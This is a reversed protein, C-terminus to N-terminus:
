GCFDHGEQSPRLGEAPEAVHLFVLPCRGMSPAVIQALGQSAQASPGVEALALEGKSGAHGGAGHGADFGAARGVGSPAGHLAEDVGCAAADVEANVSACGWVWDGVWGRWRRGRSAGEGVGGAASVGCVEVHTLNLAGFVPPAGPPGAPVVQRAVAPWPLCGVVGEVEVSVPAVLPSTAEGTGVPDGLQADAVALGLAPRGVRVFPGCVVRGPGRHTPEATDEVSVSAFPGYEFYAGDFDCGGPAFQPDAAPQYFVQM